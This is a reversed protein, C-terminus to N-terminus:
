APRWPNQLLRGGGGMSTLSSSYFTSRIKPMVDQAQDRAAQDGEGSEGGGREVGARREDRRGPSGVVSGNGVTRRVSSRAAAIWVDDRHRNELAGISRRSTYDHSGGCLYVDQSIITRSGISMEGLNYLHVRPGIASFEGLTLQWPMEVRCTSAIECKLENEHRVPPPDRLAAGARAKWALPWVTARAIV